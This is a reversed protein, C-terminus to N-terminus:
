RRGGKRRIGLIACLTGIVSMSQFARGKEVKISNKRRNRIDTPDFSIPTGGFAGGRYTHSTPRKPHPVAKSRDAVPDHHQYPKM